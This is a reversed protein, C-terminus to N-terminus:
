ALEYHGGDKQEWDGGWVIAVGVEAAASVFSEHIKEYLPYEWRGKGLVYAMIDIARGDLHKSDMTWSAGLAVYEAQKEVTRVGDIIGFDIPSRALALTAVSVLEPRVGVLNAFSQESFQWSM